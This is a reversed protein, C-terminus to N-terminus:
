AGKEEKVLFIYFLKKSKKSSLHLLKM